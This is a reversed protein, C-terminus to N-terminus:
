SHTFLTKNTPNHPTPVPNCKLLSARLSVAIGMFTCYMVRLNYTQLNSIYKYTYMYAYTYINVHM